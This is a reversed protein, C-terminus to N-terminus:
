KGTNALNSPAKKVTFLYEKEIRPTITPTPVEDTDKVPNSETETTKVEEHVVEKVINAKTSSM